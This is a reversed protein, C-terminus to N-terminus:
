VTVISVRPPSGGARSNEEVEVFYIGNLDATIGKRGQIHSSRGRIKTLSKFRGPKLVAWPTGPEGVPNAEHTEAAIICLVAHQPLDARVARRQGQTPRWVHYAVPYKPPATTKQFIVVSTRKAAEPFPKLAKM